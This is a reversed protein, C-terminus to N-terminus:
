PRSRPPRPPLYGKAGAAAAAVADSAHIVVRACSRDLEEGRLVLLEAGIAITRVGFM